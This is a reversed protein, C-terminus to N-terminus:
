LKREGGVMGVMSKVYEGSQCYALEEEAMRLKEDYLAIMDPSQNMPNAMFIHINEIKTKLLNVDIRQKNRLRDMYWDSALVTEKKFLDRIEPSNVDLGEYHGYAMINLLAKIPPIALEISGDKFYDLAATKHGAAINEVGEVFSTLDQLEPKLIEETFISKPEDFMKGLYRACFRGNIRYGLRSAPITRGEFQFDEMKELSGEAILKFPDREDETLRAWIEPALLSIDHDVRLNPGIHGTPTIFGHYDGLIYSLLASNLDYAPLLMNFPGKTLAGESGAGTTSPSKGTLSAIYDMFLEPLDQYHIPNYVALPPVKKGNEVSPPNNRRGPLIADVPKVIPKDADIRKAMREGTRALYIKIPELLDERHELYRPNQSPKGNVLRPNSPLVCYTDDGALFEEINKRVPRTFKIYDSSDNKIEIVDEKTLPQYNTAFLNPSSLDLEAKEDYGKVIADDPRQFFRYECNQVFKYSDRKYEPDVYPMQDAPILISATIDDEMQIKESPMFDMRLKFIRWAEDEIYGIRLFSPRIVRNDIKLENGPKGDIIDVSFHKRWDDGWSQKYFRKLMFVLAKVHNPISELFENYEETCEPKPTLLKIVSGLTRSEALIPRAPKTRNPDDKFRGRYDYNLIREVYDLDKELDQVYLNGYIISNDMSKSIESKGGGSVTCPKHCFTGVAATKALKWLPVQPHKELHLKEGNPLLYWKDPLLPLTQIEGNKNWQIKSKYLDIQINEPLYIIEEYLKDVGYGQDKLDMRDKFSEKVQDFTYGVMEPVEAGDYFVGVNTRPYVITGGAHEEETNGFLNSAYSIQTKIEKKSYGFYNDAILTVVVGQDDRLTLKFGEGDNYLEDEDKYCMGDKRQRDTAEEYFPLGVDKKKVTVLHPALVIYGTHGSWADVDMGSDNIHLAPDGANGFISETFDLNSVFGGPAVYLIEMTKGNLLDKVRPSVAPKTLLSVFTKAPKDQESTFPLVMLDEPPNLALWYLKKFTDLPVAKKDFPIPLGGEAIHFSGETTRRDHKPNHLIGGKIKYSTLYENKYTHGGIPLSLERALGYRDLSLSPDIVKPTSDTDGFFSRFCNNIRRNIGVEESDLLRTKEKYNEVFEELLDILYTDDSEQGLDKGDKTAIPLDMASLKFNIYRIRDERSNLPTIDGYDMGIRKRM